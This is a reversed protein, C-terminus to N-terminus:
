WCYLTKKEELPKTEAKEFVQNSIQGYRRSDTMCPRQLAPSSPRLLSRDENDKPKKKSIAFPSSDITEQMMQISSNWWDKGQAMRISLVAHDEVLEVEFDPGSTAKHGATGHAHRLGIASFKSHLYRDAPCLLTKVAIVHLGSV